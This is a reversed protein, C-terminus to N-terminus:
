SFLQLRKIKGNVVRYLAVWQMERETDEGVRWNPVVDHMAVWEGVRFLTPVDVRVDPMEKFVRDIAIRVADIGDDMVNGDGDVIVADPAYYSLFRDLDHANYADHEALVVALVDPATM